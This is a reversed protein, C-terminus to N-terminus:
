PEGPHNWGFFVFKERESVDGVLEGIDPGPYMSRIILTIRGNEYEYKVEYIITLIRTKPALVDKRDPRIRFGSARRNIKFHELRYNEHVMRDDTSSWGIWDEFQISFSNKKCGKKVAVEADNIIQDLIFRDNPDFMENYNVWRCFNGALAKSKGRFCTGTLRTWVASNLLVYVQLDDIEIHTNIFM